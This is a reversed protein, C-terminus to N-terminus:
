GKLNQGKNKKVLAIDKVIQMGPLRFLPANKRNYKKIVIISFGKNGYKFIRIKFSVEWLLIDMKKIFIEKNPPLADEM